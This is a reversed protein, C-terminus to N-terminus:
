FRHSAQVRSWDCGGKVGASNNSLSNESSGKELLSFLRGPSKEKSSGDVDELGGTLEAVWVKDSLLGVEVFTRGLRFGLILRMFEDKMGHSNRSCSKNM